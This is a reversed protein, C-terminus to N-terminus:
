EIRKKKYDSPIEGWLSKDWYVIQQEYGEPLTRLYEMAKDLLDVIKPNAAGLAPPVQMTIEGKFTRIAAINDCYIPQGLQYHNCYKVAEVIALFEAINSTCFGLTNASVLYRSGQMVRFEALGTSNNVSVDLHIFDGKPKESHELASNVIRQLLRLAVGYQGFENIRDSKNKSILLAQNYDTTICIDRGGRVM